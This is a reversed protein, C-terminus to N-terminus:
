KIYKKWYRNNTSYKYIIHMEEPGFAFVDNKIGKVDWTKDDIRTITYMWDCQNPPMMNYNNGEGILIMHSNMEQFWELFDTM